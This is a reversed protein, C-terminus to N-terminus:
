QFLLQSLPTLMEAAPRTEALREAACFRARAGRSAPFVSLNTGSTGITVGAAAATIDGLLLSLEECSLEQISVPVLAQDEVVVKQSGATCSGSVTAVGFLRHGSLTFGSVTVSGLFTGSAGNAVTCDDEIVHVSLNKPAWAIGTMSGVFGAVAVAFAAAKTSGRVKM